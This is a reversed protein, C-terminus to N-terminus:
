SATAVAVRAPRVVADVTRFGPSLERTVMGRAMEVQPEVLVADHLKPDFPHGVTPIRQLGHQEFVNRLGRLVLVVGERLAPATADDDDADVAQELGRVADALGALVEVAAQQRATALESEAHRRYNSLDGELQTVRRLVRELERRETSSVPDDRSEVPTSSRAPAVGPVLTPRVVRAGEPQDTEFAAAMQIPIRM